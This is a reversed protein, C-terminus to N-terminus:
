VLTAHDPKLTMHYAHLGKITELPTLRALRAQFINFYYLKLVHWHFYM